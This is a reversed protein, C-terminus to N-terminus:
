GQKGAIHTFTRNRRRHPHQLHQDKGDTNFDAFMGPQVPAVSQKIEEVKDVANQPQQQHNDKLLYVSPFNARFPLFIGSQKTRDPM